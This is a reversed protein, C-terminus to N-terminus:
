KRRRVHLRRVEADVNVKSHKLLQRYLNDMDQLSMIPASRKLDTSLVNALKDFRVVTVRPSNVTIRKLTSRSGFVIYSKFVDEDWLSLYAKLTNIHGRNQWIPNYFQYKKGGRFTQAWNKNKEDGFVWGSYNKCEFVYIGTRDIMVVDIESTGGNRRPIYLNVLLRQQRQLKSLLAYVQYEGFNGANLMTEYYRNGSAKEYGSDEFDKHEVLFLAAVFMVIIM